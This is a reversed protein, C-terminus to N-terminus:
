SPIERNSIKSTSWRAKSCNELRKLGEGVRKEAVALMKQEATDIVSEIEEDLTLALEGIEAGARLMRCRLGHEEVVAAYYNVNAATPVAGLIRTLYSVGGVKDLEEARRLVDAVTVADIPQNQNYLHSIAEFIAQHAPVYFDDSSLRDFM